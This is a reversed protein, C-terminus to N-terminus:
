ETKRLMSLGGNLVSLKMPLPVLGMSFRDQHSSLNDDTPCIKSKQWNWGKQGKAMFNCSYGSSYSIHPEQHNSSASTGSTVAPTPQTAWTATRRTVWPLPSPLWRWGPSQYCCDCLYQLEKNLYCSRTTLFLYSVLM